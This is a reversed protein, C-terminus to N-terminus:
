VAGVNAYTAMDDTLHGQNLYAQISTVGSKYQQISSQDAQGTLGSQAYRQGAFWKDQGLASVQENQCKIAAADDTNLVKGNNWDSQAQGKFQSCYTRIM